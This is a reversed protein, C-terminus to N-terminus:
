TCALGRPCVAGMEAPGVSLMDVKDLHVLGGRLYRWRQQKCPGKYGELCYGPTGTMGGSCADPHYCALVNESSNTARWYGREISLAELTTKGGSSTSHAVVESCMPALLPEAFVCGDCVIRCGDCVAEYPDGSQWLRAVVRVIRIM